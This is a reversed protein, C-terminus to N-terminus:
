SKLMQEIQYELVEELSVNAYELQQPMLSKQSMGPVTNVEILYLEGKCLIFDARFFGRCDLLKYIRKSLEMTKNYEIESIRAPTIEQTGPSDYKAEFDFFDNEFVIETVALSRVEGGIRIVGCTIETGEVFSEILIRDSVGFALKIAPALEDSSKVKTVGISSGGDNPKVFCPLGLKGIIEEENCDQERSILVSEAVSIGNQRLYQNCFGKNFTLASILVECGNYKIGLLDFYGQIKGDEGPTGHIINLVGDFAVTESDNYCTFDQKNIKWSAGKLDEVSWGNVSLIVKFVRYKSGNIHDIITQASQMSIVDEGSFGGCLVAINNM